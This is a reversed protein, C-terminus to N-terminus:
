HCEGLGSLKPSPVIPKNYLNVSSRGIIQQTGHRGINSRSLALHTDEKVAIRFEFDLM